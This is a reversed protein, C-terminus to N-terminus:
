TGYPGYTSNYTTYTYTYIYTYTQRCTQRATQIDPPICTHMYAHMYAHICTHMIHMYSGDRAHSGDRYRNSGYVEFDWIAAQIAMVISPKGHYHVLIDM